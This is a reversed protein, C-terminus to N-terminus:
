RGSRYQRDIEAIAARLWHNYWDLFFFAERHLSYSNEVKFSTNHLDTRMSIPVYDGLNPDTVWVQGRFPGNLVLVAYIGSGYHAVKIAGDGFPIAMFRNRNAENEARLRADWRPIQVQWMEDTISRYPNVLPFPRSAATTSGSGNPDYSAAVDDFELRKAVKGTEDKLVAAMKRPTSPSHSRRSKCHYSAMDPALAM